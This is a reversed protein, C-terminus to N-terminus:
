STPHTDAITGGGAAYPVVLTVTRDPKWPATQAQASSAILSIALWAYPVHTFPRNSAYKQIM